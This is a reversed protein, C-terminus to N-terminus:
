RKDYAKPESEFFRILTFCVPLDRILAMSYNENLHFSGVHITTGKELNLLFRQIFAPILSIIDIARTQINWNSTELIEARLDRM